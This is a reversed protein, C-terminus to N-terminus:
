KTIILINIYFKIVDICKVRVCFDRLTEMNTVLVIDIIYDNWVHKGIYHTNRKM